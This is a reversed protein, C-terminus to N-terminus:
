SYPIRLKFECKPLASGYYHRVLAEVTNFHSHDPDLYVSGSNEFVQYHKCGVVTYVSLVQRGSSGRRILYMGDQKIGSLLSEATERSLSDQFVSVPLLNKLQRELDSMVNARETHKNMSSGVPRGRRFSVGDKQVEPGAPEIYPESDDSDSDSHDGPKQKIAQVEYSRRKQQIKRALEDIGAKRKVYDDNPLVAQPKKIVVPKSHPDPVRPVRPCSGPNYPVTPKVPPQPAQRKPPPCPGGPPSALPRPNHKPPPRPPMFADSGRGSAGRSRSSDPRAPVSPPPVNPMPFQSAIGPQRTHPAPASASMPEIEDTPEYFPIAEEFEHSIALGDACYSYEEGGDGSNRRMEKDLMEVWTKREDETSVVFYFPRKGPLIPNLRIGFVDDEQIDERVEYGALCISGLEKSSQFDKYYYLCGDKLILYRTQMSRFRGGEKVVFGHHRCCLDILAKAPICSMPTAAMKQSLFDFKIQVASEFSKL